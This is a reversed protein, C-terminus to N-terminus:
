VIGDSVGVLNRTIVDSGWGGFVYTLQTIVHIQSPLVQLLCVGTKESALAMGGNLIGVIYCCKRL